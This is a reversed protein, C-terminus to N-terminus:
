IKTIITGNGISNTLRISINTAGQKILTVIEFWVEAENLWVHSIRVQKQKNLYDVRIMGPSFINQPNYEKVKKSIIKANKISEEKTHTHIHDM